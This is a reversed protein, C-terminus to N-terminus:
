SDISPYNLLQTTTWRMRKSLSPALAIGRIRKKSITLPKKKISSHKYHGPWFVLKNCSMNLIIGHRHMWPKDLIILHQSLKTVLLLALLKTHGQVILTPYIAHIISNVLRGNFGKIPKPKVLKIFSIQLVKCIYCAIKKDVFAISTASTDLLTHARIEGRNGLNCQM